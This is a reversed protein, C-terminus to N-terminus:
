TKNEVTSSCYQNRRKEEPYPSDILYSVVDLLQDVADM